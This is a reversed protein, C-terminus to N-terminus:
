RNFFMRVVFFLFLCLISIFFSVIQHTRKDLKFLLANQPTSKEYYVNIEGGIPNNEIFELQWDLPEDCPFLFGRSVPLMNALTTSTFSEGNVSYLYIGSLTWFETKNRQSINTVSTKVDDIVASKNLSIHILEGKVQVYNKPVKPGNNIHYYWAFAQCLIFLVLLM